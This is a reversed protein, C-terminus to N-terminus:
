FLGSIVGDDDVDINEAAPRKPLGPMTMIDGTLAVIFGAGASVKVNRVTVTFGTPRASASPPRGLLQVADQGHLRAPQRLRAGGAARDAKERRAHLAVDGGGYVRTVIARSRRRSACTSNPYAFRSITKRRACACSRARSSWAARAARAGLGRVARRARGARACRSECSRSSRTPTPRSATSRWSARAPRLREEYQGCPQLLNPMGASSRTLIRRRWARGEGAGGHM